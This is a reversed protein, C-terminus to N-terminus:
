EKSGKKTLTTVRDIEKRAGAKFTADIGPREVIQRYMSIAEDFKSVKEYSQGAMYLSTATWNVKGQKSVLYPVKLFELVAQRYDGKYYYAEGINYRLEAELDSGAEDILNQFQQVAQDYYGAKTFLAGLKIKKVIISEDGPFRTIFERTTKISADYLKTSEYAEILNNMAFSIVDNTSDATEMIRRYYRIAEEFREANFHMNGLSLLVRPLIDSQPYNAIVHDYKKAAEEPKNTVELIKGLYYEGWPGFRTERYDDALQEFFKKATLYDQKRYYLSAREYEFEAETSKEKGYMNEFEGALKNAEVLNDTRFTAIVAKALYSKKSTSANGQALKTFQKAAEAYQGQQYLLEALEPNATGSGGTSAAQKFYSAAQQTKGQSQAILGLGYFAKGALPSRLNKKLFKNYYGAARLYDGKKEYAAGLTFHFLENSRNEFPPAQERFIIAQSLSIAEDIDGNQLYEDPLLRESKEAQDTYYYETTIKRLLPIAATHQQHSIFYSAIDFIADVIYKDKVPANASFELNKQASDPKDLGLYAWGRSALAVSFFSKQANDKLIPTTYYIVERFNKKMWAQTFLFDLIDYKHSSAPHLDLFEKSTRIREEESMRRHRLMLSNYEADDSMQHTPYKKIFTDYYKLADDYYTTDRDALEDYAKALNYEAYIIGENSLGGNVAASFQEVARLPEHFDYLYLHGLQFLLEGKAKQLSMDSLIDALQRLYRENAVTSKSFTYEIKKELDASYNIAAPYSTRVESYTKWAGDYDNLYEQCMGIREIATAAFKSRPYKQVIEDFVNSALRNKRMNFLYLDGLKMMVEACADDHYTQLFMNYYNAADAFNRLDISATAALVLAKRRYLDNTGTLAKTLYAIADAPQKNELATRAAQICGEEIFPNKPIDKFFKDYTKQAVSFQKQIFGIAGINLLAKARLSDEIGTNDAVTKLHELAPTYDEGSMELIGLELTAASSAPTAKYTIIITKFITEADDFLSQSAQLKGLTLLASAKVNAPADSQTVRHAEKEALDINGENAYIEGLEAHAQLTSKSSPSDQIISRLTKKASEPDGARRYMETSKLLAEPVLPSNPHFVKVREYAAAAERENGQAAFADGVMLWAEPAKPHQVNAIAFNQLTLRADDYRKLKMQTLGLYYKAEIGQSTAPYAAVFNKLQEAALDYMGDNYLGVALKFESNEQASLHSNLAALLSCLAILLFCKHLRIISCTNLKNSLDNM